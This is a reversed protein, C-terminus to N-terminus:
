LGIASVTVDPWTHVLSTNDNKDTAYGTFTYTGATTLMLPIWYYVSDGDYWKYEQHCDSLTYNQITISPTAGALTCTLTLTKVDSDEDTILVKYWYTTNVYIKGSYNTYDNQCVTFDAGIEPDNDWYDGYCGGLGVSAICAFLVVALINKKAKM